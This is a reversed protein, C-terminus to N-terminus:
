HAGQDDTKWERLNIQKGSSAPYSKPHTTSFSRFNSIPQYSPRSSSLLSRVGATKFTRLMKEEEKCTEFEPGWYDGARFYRSISISATTPGILDEISEKDIFGEWLIDQGFFESESKLEQEPTLKLHDVSGEIVNLNPISDFDAEGYQYDPTIPHSYNVIGRTLNILAATYRPHAPAKVLKNFVSLM